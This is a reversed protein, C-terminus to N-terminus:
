YKWTKDCTVNEVCSRLVELNRWMHNGGKWSEDCTIDRKQCMIVDKGEEIVHSIMAELKQRM